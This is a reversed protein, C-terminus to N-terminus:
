KAIAIVAGPRLWRIIEVLKNDDIAVCGATPGGDTAHMFFAGGHGPVRQKNVGMVVSHVYQPIQLNESESTDFPCQEKKCIQMTNYTRSKPDGDWWHNPGVQVYQLGGGPSPATGFVYDLTFIGKPTAPYGDRSQETMGASGVHTPIGAELPQWGAAGRQWVDMKASSGGVSVVSIVQTANGVGREFWPTYDARSVPAAIMAIVAAVSVAV